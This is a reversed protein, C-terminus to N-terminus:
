SPLMPVAKLCLDRIRHTIKNSKAEANVLQSMVICEGVIERAKILQNVYDSGLQVDDNLLLVSDSTNLMPRVYDLAVEICKTWWWNGDGSLIQIQRNQLEEIASSLVILQEMTGDTSGDDIVIIELEGDFDQYILDLVCKRTMEVRNHVPILVYIRM